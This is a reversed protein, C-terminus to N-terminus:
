NKEDEIKKITKTKNKKENINKKIKQNSKNKNNKGIQKTIKKAKSKAVTSM